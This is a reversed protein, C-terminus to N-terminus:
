TRSLDVRLWYARWDAKGGLSRCMGESAKNGVQVFGLAMRDVAEDDTHFHAMGERFIKASLLKALGQGRYAPEVHLTTLSSDLGIFAWAIPAAEAVDGDGDAAPTPAPYLALSPLVAMTRTQRPIQTRSKVLAFDAGRVAAWRLGEPLPSTQPPPLAAIDFIFTHNPEEVAKHEPSLLALRQLVHFTSEHVAGWLMISANAAHDAYDTRTHGSADRDATANATPTTIAEAGNPTETTAQHHHISTPIPLAKMAEVLELVLNDIAHWAETAEPAPPAAEWSGFLWVETEPRCSRDAFAITWPTDHSNPEENAPAHLDLNSLLCTAAFFRGSQLRRYLPLSTPLHPHLAALARSITPTAEKTALAYTHIPSM